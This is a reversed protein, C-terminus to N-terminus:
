VRKLRIPLVMLVGHHYIDLQKRLLEVRKSCGSISRGITIRLLQLVEDAARSCFGHLAREKPASHSASEKRISATVRRARFRNRYASPHAM